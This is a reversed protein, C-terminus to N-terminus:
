QIPRHRPKPVALFHGVHQWDLRRVCSCPWSQSKETTPWKAIRKSVPLEVVKERDLSKRFKVKRLKLQTVQCKMNYRSTSVRVQLSADNNYHWRKLARSGTQRKRPKNSTWGKSETCKCVHFCQTNGSFMYSVSQRSKQTTGYSQGKMDM